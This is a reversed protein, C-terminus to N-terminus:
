YYCTSQDYEQFCCWAFENGLKRRGSGFLKTHHHCGAGSRAAGTGSKVYIHILSLTSATEGTARCTATIVTTGFGKPTVIGLDVTAVNEDSSVWDVSGLTADAPTYTVDLAIDGMSVCIMDTYPEIAVHEVPIYEVVKLVYSGYVGSHDHTLASITVEGAKLCNM